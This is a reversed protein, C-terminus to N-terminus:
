APPVPEPETNTAGGIGAAGFAPSDATADPRRLYFSRLAERVDTWTGAILPAPALTDILYRGYGRERARRDLIVVAGRDTRSRILRGFGQKLRLAALPLMYDVFSNGGNKEIAELRAATLPETPVRFPLRAIILGRLPDGPVDVGEWFSSVGLLIGRGSEVFRELLRARPSEGQVFMPWRGEAGRRRLEVAVARLARYSTFLVFLGGDTLRALDETVVATTRDLQGDGNATPEPADTVVALATQQEFDFPSLHTAETVRLGAGIGLRSRVFGFGDRTSLTASTLVATSVREFLSERLAGALEVPAARIAINPERAVGRRELWRVLPVTEVAPQLATRLGAATEALRAHVGQLEILQEVLKEAWSEDVAIRERLQEIGRTLEDLTLLLGELATAPGSVWDPEGGFDEGLRVVGDDSRTCLSELQAFFDVAIERVRDVRPRIRREIFELADQQLLDADGAALRQEIASLLGRGRRDLRALQRMVGRRTIGVGLHSTAAEELNHAEDLILRRYPPLVAQATWNEQLRRVAVDSFLLHHNVVLIEASTADRRARQYFCAEFHPCRTRLCV